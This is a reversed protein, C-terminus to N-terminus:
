KFMDDLETNSMTASSYEAEGEKKMFDLYSSLLLASDISFNYGSIFTGKNRQMKAATSGDEYLMFVMETSSNGVRKDSCMSDPFCTAVKEHRRRVGKELAIDSWGHIKEIGYMIEAMEASQLSITERIKDFEAGTDMFNFDYILLGTDTVHPAVWMEGMEDSGPSFYPIKPFIHAAKSATVGQTNTATGLTVNHVVEAESIAKSQLSEIANIRAKLADIKARKFPNPQSSDMQQVRLVERLLSLQQNVIDLSKKIDELDAASVATTAEPQSSASAPEAKMEPVVLQQGVEPSLLMGMLENAGSDTTLLHTKGSQAAYGELASRTGRGWYGDIYSRYLGEDRLRVQVQKRIYRSQGKFAREMPSRAYAYSRRPARRKNKESQKGLQYAGIGVLGLIAANRAGKGAYAQSSFALALACVFIILKNM